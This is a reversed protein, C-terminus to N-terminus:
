PGGLPAPALGRFAGVSLGPRANGRPSRSRIIQEVLATSVVTTTLSKAYRAFDSTL